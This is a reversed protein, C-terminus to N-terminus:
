NRRPALWDIPDQAKGKHSLEFYLSNKEQGGSHGALAIADGRFVIDGTKQLLTQNYGYLTIYSDSHDLAIVMGYGKFYGAFLVRGTAVARVKEGENAALALGKWKVQSSRPSGFKHLVKGNIPWKLKGKQKALQSHTKDESKTKFAKAKAATLEREQNAESAKKLRAGLKKESYRLEALKATQYNIDQKLEFLAKDRNSKQEELEVQTQKQEDYITQLAALATTQEAENDDLAQQTQHLTEISELRAKNLYHYYSKARVVKSINEQNLILKVLDNQGAMYASILQQQLLTQQKVKNEKLEKTREELVSFEARKAEILEKTQNVQLASKAIEQESNVVEKDLLKRQKEKEAKTQKSLEIQSQLNDKSAASAQGNFLIATFLSVCILSGLRGPKNSFLKKFMVTIVPRIFKFLVISLSVM